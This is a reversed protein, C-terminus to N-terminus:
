EVIGDMIAAIQEESYGLDGLHKKLAEKYGMECEEQRLKPHLFYARVSKDKM